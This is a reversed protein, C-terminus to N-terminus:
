PNSLIELFDFIFTEQFTYKSFTTKWYHSKICIKEIIDVTGLILTKESIKKQNDHNWYSIINNFIGIRFSASVLFVDRLRKVIPSVSDNIQRNSGAASMICKTCLSCKKMIKKFKHLTDKLNVLLDQLFTEQTSTTTLTDDVFSPTSTTMVIVQKCFTLSNQLIM